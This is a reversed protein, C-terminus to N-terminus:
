LGPQHCESVTKLVLILKHGILRSAIIPNLTSSHVPGHHILTRGNIYLTHLRRIPSGLGICTLKDRLGEVM